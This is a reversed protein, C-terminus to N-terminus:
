RGIGGGGLNPAAQSSYEESQSNIGECIWGKAYRVGRGEPGM